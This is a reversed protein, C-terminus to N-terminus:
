GNRSKARAAGRVAFYSANVARAAPMSKSRHRFLFSMEFFTCALERLVGASFQHSFRVRGSRFHDGREAFLDILGGTVDFPTPRINQFFGMNGHTSFLDVFDGATQVARSTVQFLAIRLLDHGVDIVRNLRM